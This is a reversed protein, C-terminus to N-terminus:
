DDPRITWINPFKKDPNNDRPDVEGRSESPYLSEVHGDFMLYNIKGNQFSDIDTNTDFHKQPSDIVAGHFNFATNEARVNETLLLTSNPAHIMDLKIAPMTVITSEAATGDKQTHTVSIFNTLVKNEFSWQWYVGVGTTNQASLPWNDDKMAHSPMAYTRRSLGEASPVTDAPCRLLHKQALGNPGLPVLPFILSDWVYHSAEYDSGRGFRLYAYPLRGGNNQAYMGMAVGLQKLNGECTASMSAPRFRGIFIYLGAGLVALAIVIAILDIRSFAAICKPNGSGKFM